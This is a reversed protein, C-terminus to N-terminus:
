LGRLFELLATNFGAPDEQQTWHGPGELMWTGRYDALLSPMADIQAQTGRVVTDHDGGIFGSPMSIRDVPLVNTLEWNADLNRYFSVPGFFGSKEFQAAYVDIDKETLWAPLQQPAEPM